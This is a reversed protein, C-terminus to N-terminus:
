GGDRGRYLGPRNIEMHREPFLLAGFGVKAYLRHADRTSLEFRRLGQLDPHAMVVEMMWQGLGQRRYTELVYVDALYAYTARDTVVRAFGIQDTRHWLSFPISNTIARELLERSIGESWYVTTLFAHVADLDVGAHETTIRFDGRVREAAAM